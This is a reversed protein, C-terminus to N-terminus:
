DRDDQLRKVLHRDGIAIEFFLDSERDVILLDGIVWAKIIDLDHLWILTADFHAYLQFDVLADLPGLALPGFFLHNFWRLYGSQSSDWIKAFSSFFFFKKKFKPAESM